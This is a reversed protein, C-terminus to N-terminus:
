LKPNAPIVGFRKALGQRLLTRQYMNDLGGMLIPWWHQEICRSRPDFISVFWRDWLYLHQPKWTGDNEWIKIRWNQAKWLLRWCEAGPGGALNIYKRARRREPEPGVIEVTGPFHSHIPIPYKRTSIAHFIHPIKGNEWLIGVIDGSFFTPFPMSCTSPHNAFHQKLIITTSIYVYYLWM